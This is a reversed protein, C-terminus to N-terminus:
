TGSATPTKNKKGFTRAHFLPFLIRPITQFVMGIGAYGALAIFM